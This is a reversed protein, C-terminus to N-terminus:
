DTNRDDATDAPGAGEDHFEEASPYQEEETGPNDPAQELDTIEPLDRQQM